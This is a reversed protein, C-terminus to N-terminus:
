WPCSVDFSDDIIYMSGIYVICKNLLIENIQSSLKITCNNALLYNCAAADGM